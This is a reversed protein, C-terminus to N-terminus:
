MSILKLTIAKAIAQYRNSVQLKRFINRMHFHVTRDSIDLNTAIQKSTLGKACWALCALEKSSLPETLHKLRIKNM